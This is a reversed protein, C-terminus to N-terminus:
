PLGFARVYDDGTAHCDICIAPKGSYISDGAGDWEAWYWGDERKEMAAILSLEGDEYGDKAIITGVPWAELGSGALAQEAVDNVFIEVEDGHPASSTRREAYGPARAWSQYSEAQMRSLLDDAGEPDQDDGCAAALVTSGLLLLLTGLTRKM